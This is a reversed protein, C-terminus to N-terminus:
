QKEGKRKDLISVEILVSEKHRYLHSIILDNFQLCYLSHQLGSITAIVVIYPWVKNWFFSIKGGQKVLIDGEESLLPGHTLTKLDSEPITWGNNLAYIDPM